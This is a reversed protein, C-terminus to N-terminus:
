KVLLCKKFLQQEACRLVYFYIGNGVEQGHDGRGDWLVTHSGSSYRKKLLHRVCQGQLNYILLEIDTEVPVDFSLMTRDNFPNPYNAYLSVNKPNPLTSAVHASSIVQVRRTESWDSNTLPHVCRVRCFYIGAQPSFTCLRSTDLTTISLHISSFLSDPSQQMEFTTAVGGSRWSCLLEPVTLSTDRAPKVWQPAKLRVPIASQMIFGEKSGLWLFGAHDICLSSLEGLTDPTPIKYWLSDDTIIRYLSKGSVAYFLGRAGSAIAPISSSLGVSKIMQWPDVHLDVWFVGQVTAVALRGSVDQCLALVEDSFNAKTWNNGNDHSYFLGTKSGVVLTQDSSVLLSRIRTDPIGSNRPKWSLGQDASYHVGSSWLGSFLDGYENCALAVAHLNLPGTQRPEWTKGTAPLYHVGSLSALFTGGTKTFSFRYSDLLDLDPMQRQWQAAHRDYIYVGGYGGAWLRQQKDEQITHVAASALGTSIDLWETRAHNWRLLGMSTAIVPDTQGDIIIDQIQLNLLGVQEWAFLDSTRYLGHNTTGVFLAGKRDYRLSLAAQKGPGTAISEWFAGANVSRFLGLNTALYLTANSDQAFARVYATRINENIAIWTRGHDDSRHPGQGNSGAYLRGQRDVFLKTINSVKLSDVHQWSLGKNESRYVGSLLTGAFLVGSSDICLCQVFTPLKDSRLFWNRAQNESAFVGAGSTALFLTGDPHRVLEDPIAQNLGQSRLQWHEGEDHSFFIGQPTVALWEAAPTSLIQLVNNGYLRHAPLWISEDASLKFYPSFCLIVLLIHVRSSFNAM